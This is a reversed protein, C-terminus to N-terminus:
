DTSKKKTPKRCLAEENQEYNSPQSRQMYEIYLLYILQLDSPSMSTRNM